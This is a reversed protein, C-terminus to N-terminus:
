ENILETIITVSQTLLEKQVSLIRYYKGEYKIRMYDNINHYYRIRFTPTYDYYVELGDSQRNGRNYIVEARTNVVDKWKVEQSGFENRTTIPEQITILYKLSGANM